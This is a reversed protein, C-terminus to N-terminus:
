EAQQKQFRHETRGARPPGVGLRPVTEQERWDGDPQRPLTPDRGGSTRLPGHPQDHEHHRHSNAVDGREGGLRKDSAGRHKQREGSEHHPSPSYSLEEM